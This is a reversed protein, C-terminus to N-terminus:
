GEGAFRPLTPSRLSGPHPSKRQVGGPEESRESGGEGKPPPILPAASNVVGVLVEAASTTARAARGLAALDIRGREVLYARQEALAFATAIQQDLVQM